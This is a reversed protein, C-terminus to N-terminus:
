MLTDLVVPVDRLGAPHKKEGTRGTGGRSDRLPASLLEIRRGCKGSSEGSSERNAGLICGGFTRSLRLNLIFNTPGTETNPAIPAEFPGPANNFVGYQTVVRNALPTSASALAPRAAHVGTGYLDQPLLMSFPEGSNALIMPSLRIDLPLDFSGGILVRYRYDFASRGYDESLNYPNTQFSFEGAPSSQLNLGSNGHANDFVYYGFLSVRKVNAHINTVLQTQRYVGASQYQYINGAANGFPRV